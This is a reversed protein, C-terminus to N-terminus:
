NSGVTGVAFFHKSYELTSVLLENLFQEEPWKKKIGRIWRGVFRRLEDRGQLRGLRKKVCGLWLRNHHLRNNGIFGIEQATRWGPPSNKQKKDKKWPAARQKYLGSPLSLSQFSFCVQAAPWSTHSCVQERAHEDLNRECEEEEEEERTTGSAATQCM